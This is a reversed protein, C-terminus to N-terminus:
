FIGAIIRRVEPPVQHVEAPGAIPLLSPAGSRLALRGGHPMLHGAAMLGANASRLAHSARLPAIVSSGTLGSAQVRHALAGSQAALYIAAAGDVATLVSAGAFLGHEGGSGELLLPPHEGPEVSVGSGIASLAADGAEAPLGDRFSRYFLLKEPAIWLPCGGRSLRLAEAQSLRHDQWVAVEAVWGNFAALNSAERCLLTVYGGVAPIGSGLTTATVGAAAGNWWVEHLQQAGAVATNDAAASGRVSFALPRFETTPLGPLIARGRGDQDSVGWITDRTSGVSVVVDSAASTGGVTGGLHITFGRKRGANVLTLIRTGTAAEPARRMWLFVSLDATDDYEAPLAFSYGGAATGRLAM